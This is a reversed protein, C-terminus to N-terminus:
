RLEKKELRIHQKKNMFRNYTFAHELTSTIRPTKPQDAPQLQDLGISSWLKKHISCSSLLTIITILSRFTNRLVLKTILNYLTSLTSSTKSKNTSVSVFLCSCITSNAQQDAVHVYTLSYLVLCVIM